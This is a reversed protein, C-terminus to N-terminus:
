AYAFHRSKFFKSVSEDSQLLGQRPQQLRAVFAGQDAAPRFTPAGNSETRAVKARPRTMAVIAIRLVSQDERVAAKRSVRQDERVAVRQSQAITRVVEAAVLDAGDAVVEAAAVGRARAAAGTMVVSKVIMMEVSLASMTEVVVRVRVTAKVMAIEVAKAMVIGTAKTGDVVMAIARIAAAAKDKATTPAPPHSRAPLLTPYHM